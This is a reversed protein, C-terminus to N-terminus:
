AYLTVVGPSFFRASTQGSSGLGTWYNNKLLISTAGISEIFVRETRLTNWTYAMGVALGAGFTPFSGNVKFQYQNSATGGLNNAKIDFELQMAKGDSRVRYHFFSDSVLNGNGSTKTVTANTWNGWTPQPNLRTIAM